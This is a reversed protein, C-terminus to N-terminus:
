PVTASWVGGKFYMASKADYYAGSSLQYYYGSNPDFQWRTDISASGTALASTTARSAEVAAPATAVAAATAAIAPPADHQGDESAGSVSASPATTKSQPVASAESSSTAAAAQAANAKAEKRREQEEHLNRKSLGLVDAAAYLGGFARILTEALDKKGSKELAARTPMRGVQGTSELHELLRRQAEERAIQEPSKFSKPDRARVKEFIGGESMKYMSIDLVQVMACVAARSRGDHYSRPSLFHRCICAFGRSLPLPHHLRAAFIPSWSLLEGRWDDCRYVQM